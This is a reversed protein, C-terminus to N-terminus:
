GPIVPTMKRFSSRTCVLLDSMKYSSRIQGSLRFGVRKFLEHQMENPIGIDAIIRGVERFSFFYELCTHLLIVM